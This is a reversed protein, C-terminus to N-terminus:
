QHDFEIAEGATLNSSILTGNSWVKKGNVWTEVVKHHIEMGAYPTWGCRSMVDSDTITHPCDPDILVLDAYYGERIFGRGKVGFIVAPAHAMTEAVREVTMVGQRALELMMPLSFQVSPMGSAATLANGRKEERLHPAHDTAVADIMGDAVAKRLAVRDDAGKIAPNCKILGDTAAYDGDAFVLYHPCTESTIKKKPGLTERDLLSLEDATSVHMLHLKAGTARALEVALKSSDYCAKRSRIEGHKEVPIGDPWEQKLRERNERIEAESEAHVAIPAKVTEFLKRLTEGNDVLMNGTSSGLFLKVGPMRSYDAKLLTSELNNNTAGIFFAYNAASVEAAREMKANWAELSVTAPNTNPMDFYSTVGGAVAARSETEIDAKHTLGPDRFHVHEDIAGPMLLMRHQGDARETIEPDSAVEQPVKGTGKSAILSDAIVVWGEEARGENVVVADYILTKGKMAKM